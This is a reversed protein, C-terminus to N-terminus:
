DNGGKPPLSRLVARVKSEIRSDESSKPRVAPRWVDTAKERTSLIVQTSKINIQITETEILLTPAYSTRTAIGKAVDPANVYAVLEAFISADSAVQAVAGQRGAHYEVVTFVTADNAPSPSPAPRGCGCVDLWMSVFCLIMVKLKM